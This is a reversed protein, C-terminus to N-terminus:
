NGKVRLDIDPLIAAPKFTVRYHYASVNATELQEAFYTVNDSLGLFHKKYANEGTKCTVTVQKSRDDQNGLSCRGEITLLYTDTIGNYFVIRRDIEFNDAAKSLNESAIDADTCASLVIGLGLVISLISIKKM